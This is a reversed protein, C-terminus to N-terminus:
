LFGAIARQESLSPRLVPLDKVKEATFHAITARSCLLDIYGAHKLAYLWYYLFRNSNQGKARVRHVANQIYCRPLEGNWIASRGVDGGECVILDGAELDYLEKEYPSFWMEKIDSVDIGSWFVNATRLYPELTDRSSSSESQLMKGLCVDYGHKLRITEWNEPVGDLWEIGSDRYAPYRNWKTASTVPVESTGTVKDHVVTM